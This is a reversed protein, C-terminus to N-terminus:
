LRVFSPPSSFHHLPPTHQLARLRGTTTAVSSSPPSRCHRVLPLPPRAGDVVASRREEGTAAERARSVRRSKTATTLSISIMNDGSASAVLGAFPSVALTSIPGELVTMMKNEAMHWLELSKHSGIVLLSPYTPHFSCTRLRKGTISLEHMCKQDGGSDIKWVRVSDESLSALYEGSSSWCVSQVNSVHGGNGVAAALFRGRTPQFRVQSARVKSVGACGGNKITWYRIASVDDCSCILDEKNPHFDVSIVSASHGTFTRISQGSNHVDWIKIMRDLSCSALRPLRPSFRVDTIKDSHEELIYKQERSETCWLVVKNDDGGIAILKGESSFDCCNVASSEISGIEAFTIDKRVDELCQAIVDETDVNENLFSEVNDDVSGHNILRVIDAMQNSASANTDSGSNCFMQARSKSDDPHLSPVSIVDEMTQASPSSPASSQSPGTTNATGSSNTPNSSMPRKRKRLAQDNDRSTNSFTADMASNSTAIAKDQQAIKYSSTEPHGLVTSKQCQQQSQNANNLEIQYLKMLTDDARSFLPLAVQVPLNADPVMNTMYNSQMDNRIGMYQDGLLMQIQQQLQLQQSPQSLPLLPSHQQLLGSQLQELGTLPWGKLPLNSVGHNSGSDLATHANAPHQSFSEDSFASKLNALPNLMNKTGQKLHLQQAQDKMGSFYRLNGGPTGQLIQRPAQDAFAGSRIISTNNQALSQGVNEGCRSQVSKKRNGGSLHAKSKTLANTAGLSQRSNTEHDTGCEFRTEERQKQTQQEIHKQMILQEVALNLDLIIRLCFLWGVENRSGSTVTRNTPVGAEAQFARASATLKRKVLYDYIYVDLQNIPMPSASFASM